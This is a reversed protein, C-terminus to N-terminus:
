ITVYVINSTRDGVQQVASYMGYTTSESSMWVIDQVNVLDDRAADTEAIDVCTYTIQCDSYLSVIWHDPLITKSKPLQSVGHRLLAYLNGRTITQLLSTLVQLKM